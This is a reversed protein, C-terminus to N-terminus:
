HRQIADHVKNKDVLPPLRMSMRVRIGDPIGFGRESIKPCKDIGLINCTPKWRNNILLEKIEDKTINQVSADLVYLDISDESVEKHFFFDSLIKFIDYLIFIDIIYM